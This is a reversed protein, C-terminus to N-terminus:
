VTHTPLEASVALPFPWWGMDAPSGPSLGRSWEWWAPPCFSCSHTHVLADMLINLIVVSIISWEATHTHLESHEQPPHLDSQNQPVEPPTEPTEQTRQWTEMSKKGQPHPPIHWLGPIHCIFLMETHEHEKWLPTQNIENHKNTNTLWWLNSEATQGHRSDLAHQFKGRQVQDERGIPTLKLGSAGGMRSVALVCGGRCRWRYVIGVSHRSAFTQTESVLIKNWNVQTQLHVFSHKQNILNM